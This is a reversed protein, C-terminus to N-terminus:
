PLTSNNIGSIQGDSTDTWNPLYLQYNGNTPDVYTFPVTTSFNHAPFQQVRDTSQVFMVNGLYRPDVPAPAGMYYNLGTTGQSGGNGTPQRCLVNDLIWVNHTTSSPPPFSANNFFASEYCNTGPAPVFTNHQM